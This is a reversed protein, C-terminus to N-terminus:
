GPRLRQVQLNQVLFQNLCMRRQSALKPNANGSHGPCGTSPSHCRPLLLSPSTPEAPSPPSLSSVPPDGGAAAAVRTEAEGGPHLRSGAEGSSELCPATPQGLLFFFATGPSLLFDRNGSASEPFDDSLCHKRFNDSCLFRGLTNVLVLISIGPGM